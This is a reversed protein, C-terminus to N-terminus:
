VNELGHELAITECHKLQDATLDTLISVMNENYVDILEVEDPDPGM